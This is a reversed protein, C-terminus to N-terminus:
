GLPHADSATTHMNWGYSTDHQADGLVRTRLASLLVLQAGRRALKHGQLLGPARACAGAARRPGGATAYWPAGPAYLSPAARLATGPQWGSGHSCNSVANSASLWHCASRATSGISFESPPDM